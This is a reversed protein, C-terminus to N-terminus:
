LTTVPIAIPGSILSGGNGGGKCDGYVNITYTTGNWSSKVKFALNDRGEAYFSIWGSDYTAAFFNAAPCMTKQTYIGTTSPNTVTTHGNPSWQGAYGPDAVTYDAAAGTISLRIGNTPDIECYLDNYGTGYCGGFHYAYNSVLFTTTPVQPVPTHVVITNITSTSSAYNVDGSYVATISHTAISLASTAFSVIGNTINGLGLASTGDYFTISGTAVGPTVTSVLTVTQGYKPTTVSSTMAVSTTARNVTVSTPASTAAANNADGNYTATINTHNGVSLTSTSISATRITGTGVAGTAIVTNGDKFTVTGTPVHDTGIYNITAILTVASSYAVTSNSTAITVSTTKPAITLSISNSTQSLYNNDGNYIANINTKTGGNFNSTSIVATEGTVTATGITINDDHDYFTVTGTADTQGLTLTLTINTGQTFSNSSAQLQATITSKSVTITSASSTSALYVSDGQYVATVNPHSGGTLVSTTLAAVGASLTQDGIDTSGDYFSVTGTAASPTMTATLTIPSGGYTPTSNSTALAVSSSLRAVSVTVPLSTSINYTSDGGYIAVISHSGATMSTYTYSATSGSVAQTGITVGRDKFTITGTVGSSPYITATLTTSSGPALSTPSAVLTISTSVKTPNTGVDLTETNIGIPGVVSVDNGSARTIYVTSTLTGDVFDSAGAHADSFYVTVYLIRGTGTTNNTVDCSMNIHYDNSSYKGGGTEGGNGSKKFVMQPTSTLNYWGINSNQGSSATCSNYNFIVSNSGTSFSSLISTWDANQTTTSGGDRSAKFNIAGGSNFFYRASNSDPFTLAFSHRVVPLSNTGWSTTRSSSIDPSLSEISYAANAFRNSTLVPIVNNFKNVDNTDIEGNLNIVPLSVITPDTTVGQHRALRLIDTKLNAWDYHSVLDGSQVPSSSVTQGYGYTPDANGTGILNSLSTQLNNYDAATINSGLIVQTM